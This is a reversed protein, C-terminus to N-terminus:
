GRSAIPLLAERFDACSPFRAAPDRSLAKHIAQALPKLIDACHQEIPIPHAELVTRIQQGLEEPLDYIYHRTLMQYLTAAASYQDSQPQCDRFSTIQEPAIFAM